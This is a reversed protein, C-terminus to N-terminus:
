NVVAIELPSGPKPQMSTACVANLMQMAALSDASLTKVYADMTTSLNSHRLVAQITKGQVGLQYLNTALGRRFAHWGYWEIGQEKMIPRIVRRALNDMSMPKGRSNPFMLGRTPMGCQARYSELLIALQGIVPVSAKSREPKPEDVHANWVSQTIKLEETTYNDWLLGRLEGKRVGTFGAVGIIAAEMPPLLTLMKIIQELSYAKTEKAPRARPICVEHMPNASHNLVGQRICYRFVGSLFSKIHRLTARSLDEHRAVDKLIREGEVTRFDRIAIEGRPKIYRAYLNRYGKMTSPRCEGEVHPFFHDEVYASLTMSSEATQTGENLPKLFVDALTRVARKNNYTTSLSALRRCRQVREIKGERLVSDYYRLYWSNGKKFIYGLQHRTNM